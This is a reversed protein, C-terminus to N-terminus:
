VDHYELTYNFGMFNGLIDSLHNRWALASSKMCYFVRSIFVLRGQDYYCEDGEYFLVKEKTLSNLYYDQIDGALIELNNLAVILFAIRVRDRIVISAYTM